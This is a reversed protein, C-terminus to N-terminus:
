VCLGYKERKLWSAYEDPSRPGLSPPKIAELASLSGSLIRLQMISPIEPIDAAKQKRDETIYLVSCAACPGLGRRVSAYGGWGGRLPDALGSKYMDGVPGVEERLSMEGKRGKVMDEEGEPTTM